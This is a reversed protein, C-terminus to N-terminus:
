RVVCQSKVVRNGSVPSAIDRDWRAEGSAENWIMAQSPSLWCVVVDPRPPFADLQGYVVGRPNSQVAPIRAPEHSTICDCMSTVLHQLENAVPLPLEFGMVM